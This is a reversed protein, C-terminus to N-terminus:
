KLVIYLVPLLVFSNRYSRIRGLSHTQHVVLSLRMFRVYIIFVIYNVAVHGGVSVSGTSTNVDVNM